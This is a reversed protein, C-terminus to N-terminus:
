RLLAFAGGIVVVFIAIWILLRASGTQANNGFLFRGLEDDNFKILHQADDDM